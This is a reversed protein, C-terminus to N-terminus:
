MARREPLDPRRDSTTPAPVDLAHRRRYHEAVAAQVLLTLVEPATGPPLSLRLITPDRPCSCPAM